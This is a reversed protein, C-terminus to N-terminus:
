FKIENSTVYIKGFRVYQLAYRDIYFIKLLAINCM